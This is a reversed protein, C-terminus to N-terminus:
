AVKKKVKTLPKRAPCAALATRVMKMKNEVETYEAEPRSDAVIGAGAQFVAQGEEVQVSRISICSDLNGAFDASIVAGGYFGRPLPELGSLLEMARIKPAGSLTGAPFCAALAKLPEVESRKLAIVRSTLHMVAGFKKLKMFEPVEVTGAVAVRGLDNRALDVLMLHESREKTSRLLQRQLRGDEALTAGRARTGAIPHTELRDGTVKLLMEPSAGLFVRNGGARGSSVYFQYPSPSLESLTEFLALPDDGFPVECRESLVAQFIDGARIHEKLTRVHELFRAKGLTGQPMAIPKPPRMSRTKTPADDVSLRCLKLLEDAERGATALEGPRPPQESVVCCSAILQGRQHDVTVVKRVLLLEADYGQTLSEVHALNGPAATLRKELYRVCDYGFYGLAGAQFYEAPVGNQRISRVRESVIAFPDGVREFTGDQGEITAKGARIRITEFPDLGITTWLPRFGDATAQSRQFYASAAGRYRLQLRRLATPPHFGSPLPAERLVPTCQRNKRTTGM